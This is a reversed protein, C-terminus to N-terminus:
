RFILLKRGDRFEALLFALLCAPDHSLSSVFIQSTLKIERRVIVHKPIEGNIHLPVEFTAGGTIVRHAGDADEKIKKRKMYSSRM